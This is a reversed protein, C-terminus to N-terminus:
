RAYYGTRARVSLGRRTTQIVVKRYTGDRTPNTSQYALEYLSRLDGAIEAFAQKLNTAHFDFTKGGTQTTLHDLARMGYRDRADMKGHKLETYRIAYVLVDANQATEIADLLDHESSNEEGDSFVVLVKRRQHIHALKETIGYFVADYLATGLEREEKPGLELFNTNGKDFSRIGDIIAPASSTSDSVLRLHNGFCVAFAQDTPELVQHLFAEIDKEHEKVFKEQSGSADIILGISLPLQNDHAFFRIKQPVGDEVVTFDDQMLGSVPLGQADHVSLATDILHTEVHIDPIGQANLRPSSAIGSLLMAALALLPTKSLRM